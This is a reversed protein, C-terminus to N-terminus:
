YYNSPDVPEGFGTMAEKVDEHNKFIGLFAFDFDVLPHNTGYFVAGVIKQGIKIGFWRAETVKGDFIEDHILDNALFKRLNVREIEQLAGGNELDDRREPLVYDSHIFLHGNNYASLSEALEDFEDDIQVNMAVVPCDMLSQLFQEKLYSQFWEEQKDQTLALLEDASDTM